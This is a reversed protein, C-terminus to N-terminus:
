RIISFTKSLSKKKPSLHYIQMYQKAESLSKIFQIHPKSDYAVSDFGKINKRNVKLACQTQGSKFHKM